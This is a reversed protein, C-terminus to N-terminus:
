QQIVYAIFKIAWSSTKFRCPPSFSRRSRRCRNKEGESLAIHHNKAYLPCLLHHSRGWSRKPTRRGQMCPSGCQKSSFWTAPSCNEGWYVFKRVGNRKKAADRVNWFAILTYCTNHGVQVRLPPPFCLTLRAIAFNKVMGKRKREFLRKNEMSNGNHWVPLKRSNSLFRHPNWWTSRTWMAVKIYTLPEMTDVKIWHYWQSLTTEITGTPTVNYWSNDNHYRQKLPVRQHLTRGVTVNFYRHGLQRQYLTKM